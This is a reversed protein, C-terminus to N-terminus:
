KEEQEETPLAERLAFCEEILADIVLAAAEEAHLESMSGNVWAAIVCRYIM